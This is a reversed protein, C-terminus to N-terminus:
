HSVLSCPPPSMLLDLTVGGPMWERVRGHGYAAVVDDPHRRAADMDVAVEMVTVQARRRLPLSKNGM